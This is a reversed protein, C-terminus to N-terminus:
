KRNKDVYESMLNRADPAAQDLSLMDNPDAMNWGKGFKQRADFTAQILQRYFYECAGIYRAENETSLERNGVSALKAMALDFHSQADLMVKFDDDANPFREAQAKKYELLAQHEREAAKKANDREERLKKNDRVKEQVQEEKQEVTKRLSEIAEAIRAAHTKTIPVKEGAIEIETDSVAGAIQRFSTPSIRTVTALNFYAAGFEEFNAIIRDATPRSIGLHANCFQDWTMDLAKYEASDKLRKLSQAQAASCKAAIMGFAQHRGVWKGVELLREPDGAVNDAAIELANRKDM